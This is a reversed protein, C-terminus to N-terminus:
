LLGASPTNFAQNGTATFDKLRDKLRKIRELACGATIRGDPEANWM